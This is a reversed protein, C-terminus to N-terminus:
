LLNLVEKRQFCHIFFAMGYGFRRSHKFSILHFSLDVTKGSDGDCVCVFIYNASCHAQQSIQVGIKKNELIIQKIFLPATTVWNIFTTKLGMANMNCTTYLSNKQERPVFHLMKFKMETYLPLSKVESNINKRERCINHSAQIFQKQMLLITYCM